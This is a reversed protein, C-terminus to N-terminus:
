IYMVCFLSPRNAAHVVKNRRCVSICCNIFFNNLVRSLCYISPICYMVYIRIIIKCNALCHIKDGHVWITVRIRINLDLENRVWFVGALFLCLSKSLCQIWNKILRKIQLYNKAMLSIYFLFIFLFRKGHKWLTITVCIFNTTEM